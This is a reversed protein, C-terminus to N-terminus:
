AAPPGRASAIGLPESPLSLVPLAGYSVAAVVRLILPVDAPPLLDAGAGLRCAHCPVHAASDDSEDGCWSADIGASLVPGHMGAASATSVHAFSLFVLALVVLARLVDSGIQRPSLM